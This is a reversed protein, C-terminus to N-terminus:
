PIVIIAVRRNNSRGEETNSNSIPESAGRGIIIINTLSFGNQLFIDAVNKARHESLKINYETSGVNDTHGIIKVKMLNYQMLQTSLQKLNVQQQPTVKSQDFNFLIRESLGLTWGDSTLQFGENKLMLSQKYSVGGFQCASLLVICSSITLASLIKNMSM